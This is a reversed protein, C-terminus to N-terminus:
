PRAPATFNYPPWPGSVMLQMGSPLDIGSSRERFESVKARPVLFYLSVLRGKAAPWAEERRDRALGEFREAISQASSREAPTLGPYRGRLDAIYQAGATLAAAAPAAEKEDSGHWLELGMETLGEWQALLQEYEARHQRLLGLVESEGEVVCGFRLPIVTRAAHVRAIAREYAVLRAVDVPRQRDPWHTVAAALGGAELVLLDRDLGALPVNPDARFICHILYKM